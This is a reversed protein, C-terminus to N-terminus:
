LLLQMQEHLEQYLKATEDHKNAIALVVEEFRNWLGKSEKGLELVFDVTHVLLASISLVTALFMSDPDDTDSLSVAYRVLSSEDLGLSREIFDLIRLVEIIRFFRRYFPVVHVTALINRMAMIAQLARTMNSRKLFSPLARDELNEEIAVRWCERLAQFKGSNDKVFGVLLIEVRMAISIQRTRSDDFLSGIQALIVTPDSASRKRIGLIMSQQSASFTTIRLASEILEYWGQLRQLAFRHVLLREFALAREKLDKLCNNLTFDYFRLGNGYALGAESFDPFANPIQSLIVIHM